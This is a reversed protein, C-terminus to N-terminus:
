QNSKGHDKTNRVIYVAQAPIVSERETEETSQDKVV